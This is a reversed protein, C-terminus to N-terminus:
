EMKQDFEQDFHMTELTCSVDNPALPVPHITELTHPVQNRSYPVYNRPVLYPYM